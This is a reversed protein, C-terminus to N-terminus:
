PIMMNYETDASVDLMKWEGTLAKGVLGNQSKENNDSNSTTELSRLLLGKLKAIEIPFPFELESCMIDGEKKQEELDMKGRWESFPVMLIQEQQCCSGCKPVNAWLGRVMNCKKTEEYVCCGSHGSESCEVCTHRVYIKIERSMVNIHDLLDWRNPRECKPLLLM